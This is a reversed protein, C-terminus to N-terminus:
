RESRRLRSTETVSKGFYKAASVDEKSTAQRKKELDKPEKQKPKGSSGEKNRGLQKVSITPGTSLSAEKKLAAEYIVTLTETHEEECIRDLIKGTVFKDKLMDELQAGFKCNMKKNKLRTYWQNVTENPM